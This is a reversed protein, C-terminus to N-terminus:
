PLVVIVLVTVPPNLEGTARVYEVSGEPTVAPKLGVDIVPVPVEVRVNVTADVM